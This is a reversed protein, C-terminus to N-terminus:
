YLGTLLESRRRHYEATNGMAQAVEMAVGIQLFNGYRVNEPCGVNLGEQYLQWLNCYTLVKFTKPKIAAAGEAAIDEIKRAKDTSPNYRM